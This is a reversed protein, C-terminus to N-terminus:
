GCFQPIIIRQPPFPIPTLPCVNLVRPREGRELLREVVLSGINGTAGTILHNM